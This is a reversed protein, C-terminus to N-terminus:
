DTGGNFVDSEMLAYSGNTNLYVTTTKCTPAPDSNDEVMVNATCTATNGNGDNATVTVNVTQGDDACSVSSPSMSQFNVTGCNDTGGNFVDSETLAHSGNAGLYVTTTKCSPSPDSDDEVT